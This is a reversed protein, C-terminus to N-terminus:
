RGFGGRIEAGVCGSVVAALFPNTEPLQQWATERDFLTEKRNGERQDRVYSFVRATFLSYAITQAYIDSFSYDKENESALRLMPLLEQQFSKLLKHLYGEEGQSAPYRREEDKYVKPIVQEIRRAAEALLRALEKATKIPEYFAREVLPISRMAKSAIPLEGQRLRNLRTELEASNWAFTQINRQRLGGETPLVLPVRGVGEETPLLMYMVPQQESTSKLYHGYIRQQWEKSTLLRQLEQESTAGNLEAYFGIAIPATEEADAESEGPHLYWFESGQPDRQKIPYGLRERLAEVRSEKGASAQTRVLRSTM